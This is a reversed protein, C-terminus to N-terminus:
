YNLITKAIDFKFEPLGHRQILILIVVKISAHSYDELDTEQIHIHNPILHM